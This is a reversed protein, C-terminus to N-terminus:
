KQESCAFIKAYIIFTRSAVHLRLDSHTRYIQWDQPHNKKTLVATKRYTEVTFKGGPPPSM